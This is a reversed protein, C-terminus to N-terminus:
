SEKWTVIYETNGMDLEPKAVEWIGSLGKERASLEFHCMAIGIDVLQLDIKGNFKDYGWTRKLYFHFAGRQNQASVRWPQNNSASPGIRVCELPVAYLGASDKLLPTDLDGDFFLEEWPKRQNSNAFRRLAMERITRRDRAYGVPSIAPVIEDESINIKEAFNARKFTGGLWCTGLGMNTAELIVKEFCYGLDVFAGEEEKVASVIFLEAGSIFGYTGLNGIEDKGLATFDILTFRVENGLPGRNTSQLMNIIEQKKANDIPRDAYSRVSVRKNIADIMSEMTDRKRLTYDAGKL